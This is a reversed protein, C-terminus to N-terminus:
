PRSEIILTKEAKAPPPMAEIGAMNANWWDEADQGTWIGNDACQALARDLADASAPRSDRSKSLCGMIIAELDGPLARGLKESPSLPNLSVQRELLESVQDSEFLTKGTLLWFGVGALSYLDSRADVKDPNQIAEPSIFHPTGVIAKRTDGAPAQRTKVLGFDLVKVVDGMGGRRTLVINAPKIDRHILGIRHAESLSGCVQRM